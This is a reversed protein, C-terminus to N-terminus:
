KGLNPYDVLKIWDDGYDDLSILKNVVIKDM